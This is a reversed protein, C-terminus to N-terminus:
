NAHIRIPGDGTRLVLSPGGGNLTGRVQSKGLDGQLTIPIGMTIRGDGTSAEVSAKFDGPLALEVPGDGTRIHWNGSMASGTGVRATVGGDGSRVDLLDFRGALTILGDGSAATCKGDLGTVDIRGDGTRLRVEGTLAQARIDGDHTNLEITGSLREARVDGDGTRVSIRGNMAALEIAGDGTELQLDADRPVHVETSLRRNRYGVMIGNKEREILEVENGNQRSELFLTNGLEYGEYTVRFEVKQADSSIVRVSSDDAQVRVTARGTVTYSKVYEEAHAQTAALPILGSLALIRRAFRM